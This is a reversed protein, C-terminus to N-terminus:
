RGTLGAATIRWARTGSTGDGTCLLWAAGVRCDRADALDAVARVRSGEVVGLWARGGRKPEFLTYIRDAVVGAVRWVGLDVRTRGTAADVLVTATSQTPILPLLTADGVGIQAGAWAGVRRWVTARATLDVAVLEPGSALCVLPGCRPDSAVEVPASAAVRTVSMVAAPDAGAVALGYSLGARGDLVLVDSTGVAMLPMVAPPLSGVPTVRGTLSDLRGLQIRGEPSAPEDAVYTGVLIEASPTYAPYPQGDGYRWIMRGDDSTLGVLGTEDQVVLVGPAPTGPLLLAGRHEWRKAGTVGDLAAILGPTIEPQQNAGVRTIQPSVVLVLDGADRLGEIPRGSRYAWLQRGGALSYARLEFDQGTVVYARDGTILVEGDVSVAPLRIPAVAPVGPAAAAQTALVLALLTGGVVATRQRRLAARVGALRAPREGSPTPPPPADLDILTM